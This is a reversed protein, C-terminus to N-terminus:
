LVPRTVRKWFSDVVPTLSAFVESVPPLNANDHEAEHLVEDVAYISALEAHELRIVNLCSKEMEVAEASGFWQALPSSATGQAFLVLWSPGEPTIEMGRAKVFSTLARWYAVNTYAESGFFIEGDPTLWRLAGPGPSGPVPVHTASVLTLHRGGAELFHSLIDHDIALVERSTLRARLEQCRKWPDVTASAAQNAVSLLTPASAAQLHAPKGPPVASPSGSTTPKAPIQLFDGEPVLLSAGKPSEGQQQLRELAEKLQPLKAGPLLAGSGGVPRQNTASVAASADRGMQKHYRLSDWTRAAIRLLSRPSAVRHPERHYIEPLNLLRFFEEAEEGTAGAHHLRHHLLQEADERGLQGLNVLGGTLRDELASPLHKQFSHTWLDQNVSLVVLTRPLLRRLETLVSAVALVHEPRGHVSDVDDCLFVVPRWLTLLRSFEALRDKFYADGMSGVQVVQMGGANVPAAQGQHTAWKLNEFRVAPTDTLGQTYSCLIRLWNSAAAESIGVEQALELSIGPLLREFHEAFWRGVPQKQNTLDFLELAREEMAAIANEPDACPVRGLRILSKNLRAFLRRGLEDLQTVGLSTLQSHLTQLVEGFLGAWRFERDPDYKIPLVVARDSLRQRLRELVYSKGYGARPAKLQVVRGAELRHRNPSALAAIHAELEDLAEIQTLSDEVALPLGDPYIDSAFPNPTM